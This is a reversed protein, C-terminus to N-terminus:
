VTNALLWRLCFGHFIMQPWLAYYNNANAPFVHKDGALAALPRVICRAIHAMWYKGLFAIASGIPLCLLRFFYAFDVFLFSPWAICPM